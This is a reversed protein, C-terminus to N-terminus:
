DADAAAAAAPQVPPASAAGRGPRRMFLLLVLPPYVWWPVDIWFVDAVIVAVVLLLSRLGAGIAWLVPAKTSVQHAPDRLAPNVIPASTVRM